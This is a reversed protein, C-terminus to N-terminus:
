KNLQLHPRIAPRSIRLCAMPRVRVCLAVPSFPQPPVGPAKAKSARRRAPVSPRSEFEGCKEQSVSVWLFGSVPARLREALAGGGKM